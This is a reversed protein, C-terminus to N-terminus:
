GLAFALRVWVGRDASGRCTWAERRSPVAVFVANTSTGQGDEAYRNISLVGDSRDAFLARLDTPSLRRDQLLGSLRGYRSVSSPEPPEGERERHKEILCHNTRHIATEGPRRSVASDPTAEWEVQEREDILWYTHAGARPASRVWESAQAVSRARLARYLLGLYGVGPRAGWTKLNTTGLAVGWENLGMLCPCGACTVTWSRPGESPERYLAVVLELDEPVLDWTQGAFGVGDAAASSPVLVASCGETGPSEALTLIDRVDTMNAAAYLDAPHVGAGAAIGLYEEIAPPDWRGHIEMCAQGTERLSRTPSVGRESLYSRTAEFRSDVLRRVRESLLTGHTFGMDHPSGRLTVCELEM